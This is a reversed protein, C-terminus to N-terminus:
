FVLNSSPYYFVFTQFFHQNLTFIRLKDVEYVKKVKGLSYWFQEAKGIAFSRDGNGFFQFIIHLFM